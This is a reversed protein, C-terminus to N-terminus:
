VYVAEELIETRYYPRLYRESVIEVKRGFRQELEERMARKVGFIDPTGEQIDVLIDIDSQEDQEGRAFSGILAMKRVRYRDRYDRMRSNLYELIDQKSLDQDSSMSLGAITSNDDCVGNYCVEPPQSGGM